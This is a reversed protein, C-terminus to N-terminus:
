REKSTLLLTLAREGQPEAAASQACASNIPSSSPLWCGHYTARCWRPTVRTAASRVGLRQPVRSGRAHSGPKRAYSRAQLRQHQRQGHRAAAAPAADATFAFAAAAASITRRNPRTSTM